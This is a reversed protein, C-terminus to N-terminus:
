WGRSAGTGGTGHAINAGGTQVRPRGEHTNPTADKTQDLSAKGSSLAELWSICDEYRLRFGDDVDAPAYGRFNQLITYASMVADCEILEDPYPASIPLTHQARLYTDMRAGNKLLHANQVAASVNTLAAPPLGVLALDATTAYQAM